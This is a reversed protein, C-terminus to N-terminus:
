LERIQWRQVTVPHAGRQVEFLDEPSETSSPELPGVLVVESGPQLTGESYVIETLLEVRTGKPLGNPIM